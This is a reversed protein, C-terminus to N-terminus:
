RVDTSPEGKPLAALVARLKAMPEEIWECKLRAAAEDNWGADRVIAKWWNGFVRGMKGGAKVADILAAIQEDQAALPCSACTAPTVNNPEGIALCVRLPERSVTPFRWRRPPCPRWICDKGHTPCLWGTESISGSAKRIVYPIAEEGCWCKKDKM